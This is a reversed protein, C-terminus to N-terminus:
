DGYDLRWQAVERETESFLSSFREQVVYYEMTLDLRGLNRLFTFTNAPLDSEARELLRHAYAVGGYRRVGEIFRTSCLGVERERDFISEMENQFQQAVLGEYNVTQQRRRAPSDMPFKSGETLEPVDPKEL